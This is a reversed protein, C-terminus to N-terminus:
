KCGHEGLVRMDVMQQGRANIPVDDIIFCIYSVWHLNTLIGECLCVIYLLFFISHNWIRTFDTVANVFRYVSNVKKIDIETYEMEMLQNCM